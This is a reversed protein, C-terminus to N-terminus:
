RLSLLLLILFRKSQRHERPVNSWSFSPSHFKRMWQRLYSNRFKRMPRAEEEKPGELLLHFSTKMKDSTGGRNSFPLLVSIYLLWDCIM